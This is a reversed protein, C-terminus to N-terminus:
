YKSNNQEAHRKLRKEVADRKSQSINIEKKDTMTIKTHTSKMVYQLNVIFSNHVRDFCSNRLEREIDTLSGYFEIEQDKSIISVKRGISEFYIIHSLPIKCHEHGIKYYFYKEIDSKDCIKSLIRKLEKSNIPLTIADSPKSRLIHINCITNTFIFIISVESNEITERIYMATQLGTQEKMEEKILISDFYLGNHLAQLLEQGSLFVEVQFKANFHQQQDILNQEIQGCISLDDCCIAFKYLREQLNM